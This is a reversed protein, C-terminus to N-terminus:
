LKKVLVVSRYTKGEWQHHAMVEYGRGGYFKLLYDAGESTDGAIYKFGAQRAREEAVDMLKAGLGRHRVDPDVGLQSAYAVDRRGRVWPPNTRGTLEVNVTGVIRGDLVAVYCEGHQIREATTQVDQYSATYNFGLDVLRQYARNLLLTLQDLSDEARLKRIHVDDM